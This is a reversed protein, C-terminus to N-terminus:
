HLMVPQHGNGDPFHPTDLTDATPDNPGAHRRELHLLWSKVAIGGGGYGHLGGGSGIVRHCPIVLPLPNKAMAQGAARTADPNGAAHALWRYSRTEGAPISRCASWAASFFPPAGSLDLAIQSLAALDGAFYATLHRHAQTLIADNDMATANDPDPGLGALADTREPKLSIRRLGTPSALLALWGAPSQDIRYHLGNTTPTAPM